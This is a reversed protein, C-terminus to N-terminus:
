GEYLYGLEQFLRSFLWKYFPIDIGLVEVVTIVKTVKWFKALVNLESVM